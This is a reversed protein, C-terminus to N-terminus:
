GLGAFSLDCLKQGEFSLRPFDMGEEVLNRNSSSMTKKLMNGEFLAQKFLLFLRLDPEKKM